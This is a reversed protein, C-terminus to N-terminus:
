DIFGIRDLPSYRFIVEGFIHDKKVMGISEFRSDVSRNRNDGLVFVSDPPVVCPFDVLEGGIKNTTLEAIYDEKLLVDDVYVEGKEFDINVKQGETAIVRKVINTDNDRKIVVIDGADVKYFCSLIILREKDELTPMMSPGDVVVNRIGFSFICIAITVAIFVSELWDCIEKKVTSNENM